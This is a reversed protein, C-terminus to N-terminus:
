YETEDNVREKEAKKKTTTKKASWKKFLGILVPVMM